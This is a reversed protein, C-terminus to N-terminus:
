LGNKDRPIACDIEFLYCLYSTTLGVVKLRGLQMSASGLYTCYTCAGWDYTM